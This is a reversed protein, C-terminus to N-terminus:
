GPGSICVSAYLPGRQSAPTHEESVSGAIRRSKNGTHDSVRSTQAKRSEINIGEGSKLYPSVNLYSEMSMATLSPSLVISLFANLTGVASQIASQFGLLFLQLIQDAREVASDRDPIDYQRGTESEAKHAM